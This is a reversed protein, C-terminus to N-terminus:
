WGLGKKIKKARESHQLSLAQFTADLEDITGVLGTGGTVTRIAEDADYLPMEMRGIKGCVESIQKYKEHTKTLRELKVLDSKALSKGQRMLNKEATKLVM